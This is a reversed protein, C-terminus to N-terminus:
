YLLDPDDMRKILKDRAEDIFTTRNKKRMRINQFVRSYNGTNAGFAMELANVVQKIQCQGRNIAGSAHLAYALEILNAVSGTWVTNDSARKSRAGPAPGGHQIQEIEQLLEENIRQYALLRSLIESNPCPPVTGSDGIALPYFSLLLGNRVFFREDDESHRLSYYRYLISHRNSFENNIDILKQLYRVVKKRGALPRESHIYILEAYYFVLHEFSPRVEKFYLVEERADAFVYDRMFDNLDHMVRNAIEFCAKSRLSASDFRIAAEELEREM